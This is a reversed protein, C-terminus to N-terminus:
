WDTPGQSETISMLDGLCTNNCKM